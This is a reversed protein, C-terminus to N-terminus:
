IINIKHQDRILDAISKANLTCNYIILCSWSSGQKSTRRAVKDIIKLASSSSVDVYLQSYIGLNRNIYDVIAIKVKASDMEKITPKTSYIRANIQTM